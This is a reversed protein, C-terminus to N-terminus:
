YLQILITPGTPINYGSFEYTGPGTVSITEVILTNSVILRLTRPAGDTGTIQVTIKNADTIGTHTGRAIDGNNVPLSGATILYFAPSVGTISYSSGQNSIEITGTLVVPARVNFTDSFSEEGEEDCNNIDFSVEIGEGIDGTTPTGSFNITSGTVSINMWSPKVVNKLSFPQSGTLYIEYNYNVGAIANPLSPSGVIGVPECPTVVIVVTKSTGIYLEGNIECVPRVTVTHTGISLSEFIYFLDTTEIPAGDAVEPTSIYYKAPSGSVLTWSVKHGDEVVEVTPTSIVANCAAPSAINVSVQSFTNQGCYKYNLRLKKFTKDGNYLIPFSDVDDPNMIYKDPRHTLPYTNGAWTRKKFSALHTALDQSDEHQLTANVIYFYNSATGTGSVPEADGTGQVPATGESEIFGETNFGSSRFQCSAKTILPAAEVVAAHAYDAVYKGLYEQAADQIDFEWESDDTNLKTYQTKSLTKYFVDNFYIDCYVVPPIANGDTREASVRLVVPRYAAHLSNAPPQSIISKIAM